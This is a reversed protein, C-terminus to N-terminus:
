FYPGPHTLPTRGQCYGYAKQFRNGDSGKTNFMYHYQLLPSQPSSNIPYYTSGCPLSAKNPLSCRPYSHVRISPYATPHGTSPNQGRIQGRGPVRDRPLIHARSAAWFLYPSSHWVASCGVTCACDYPVYAKHHGLPSSRVPPLIHVRVPCAKPVPWRIFL